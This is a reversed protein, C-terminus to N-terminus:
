NREIAYAMQLVGLDDNLRGVIQIGVPLGDQDSVGANLSLAPHGTADFSALNNSIEMCAELREKATSKATPLNGATKSLTPMILVDVDKLADDYAKKLVPVLSQSRAYFKNQYNRRMHEGLIRRMKLNIPLDYPRLSSGRTMAEQLSVPYYGKWLYGTGHGHAGCAHSGEVTIPVFIDTGVSHMPISVDKLVVGAQTLRQLREQVCKNVGADVGLFGETLVGVRRGSVDQKCLKSYQPVSDFPQQRPDKDDDFGALAELLLACDEVTKTMPGLHDITVAGSMAGTYPILGYTPKMGVIGCYSAPTRISGGQDAGIAMDVLGRAVLSACGSSSGGADKTPNMPNVIPGTSSSWSGGSLCMDDCAAKGLIHGGADLVRTVVTADFEPTYGELLKTGHMMPVGAVAISDKIAVTKGVLLGTDAGKIDCRWYWANDNRERHGPLRPYRVPLQPDPLEYVTQYSKLVNKYHDFFANEEEVTCKLNLDESLRHIEELSPQLVAPAHLLGAEEM